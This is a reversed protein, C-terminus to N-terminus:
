LENTIYVKKDEECVVASYVKGDEDVLTVRYLEKGVIGALSFGNYVEYEVGNIEIM